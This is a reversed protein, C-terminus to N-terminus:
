SLKFRVPRLIVDLRGEKHSVRQLVLVTGPDKGWDNLQEVTVAASTSPDIPFVVKGEEDALHFFVQKKKMSGETPGLSKCWGVLQETIHLFPGRM